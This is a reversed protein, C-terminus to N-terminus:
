KWPIIDPQDDVWNGILYIVTKEPRHAFISGDHWPWHRVYIEDIDPWWYTGPMLKLSNLFGALVDDTIYELKYGNNNGIERKNVWFWLEKTETTGFLNIKVCKTKAPLPPFNKMEQLEELKLNLVVEEIEWVAAYISLPFIIGVLTIIALVKFYKMEKMAM